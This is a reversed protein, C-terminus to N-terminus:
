RCVMGIIKLGRYVMPDEGQDPDRNAMMTQSRQAYEACKKADFKKGIPMEDLSDLFLSMSLEESEDGRKERKVATLEKHASLFIGYRKSIDKEAGLKKELEEIKSEFREFKGPKVPAALAVGASLALAGLIKAAHM